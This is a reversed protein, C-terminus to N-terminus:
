MQTAELLPKQSTNYGLIEQRFIMRRSRSSYRGLLMRLGTASAEQVYVARMNGSRVTSARWARSSKPSRKNPPQSLPATLVLTSDNLHTFDSSKGLSKTRSILVKLGHAINLPPDAATTLAPIIDKILVAISLFDGLSGFTPGMQQDRGVEIRTATHCLGTNPVSLDDFSSTPVCRSNEIM